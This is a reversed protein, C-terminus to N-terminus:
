GSGTALNFATIGIAPTAYFAKAYTVVYSAAGSTITASNETRSRLVLEFGLEDVLPTQDIHASSLAVKFQFQRGAYSGNYMPLWDGFDLDSELEFRDPSAELLLKDGDELLFFADATALDSARFYIDASTDDPLGGDFDSWRDLDETRSDIADAPYLGRTTLIRRFDVTFKAGLDVINTFYYEGSLRQQGMFDMAGIADFDPVEDITETGDIVVADYVDSYYTNLFTGQYPPSTTDERVTTVSLVPIQDPQNFIASTANQSRLGAPDEFKLLYEGNLKPVLM